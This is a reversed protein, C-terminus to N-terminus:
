TANSQSSPPQKIPETKQTRTSIVTKEGKRCVQAILQLQQQTDALSKGLPQQLQQQQQQQYDFELKKLLAKRPDSLTGRAQRQVAATEISVWKTGVAWWDHHRRPFLSTGHLNGHWHIYEQISHTAWIFIFTEMANHEAISLKAKNDVSWPFPRCVSDM